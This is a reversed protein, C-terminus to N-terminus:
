SSKEVPKSFGWLKLGEELFVSIDWVKETNDTSNPDAIKIKGDETIGTIVIYNGKNGFKGEDMSIIMYKGDSINKLINEKTLEMSECEIGYAKAINDFYTIEGQENQIDANNDVGWKTTEVPTIEKENIATLVMAVATSAGGSTVASSSEVLESFDKQYYNVFTQKQENNNAPPIVVGPTTTSTSPTQNNNDNGTSPTSNNEPVTTSQEPETTTTTTTTTTSTSQTNSTEQSSTPQYSGPSSTSSQFELGESATCKISSQVSTHTDAAYSLVQAINSMKIEMKSINAAITSTASAFDFTDTEVAYGAVRDSLDLLEQSSNFINEGTESLADTEILFLSM